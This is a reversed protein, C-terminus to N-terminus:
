HLMSMFFTMMSTLIFSLDKMESISPILGHRTHCICDALRTWFDQQNLNGEDCLFKTPSLSPRCARPAEMHKRAKVQMTHM